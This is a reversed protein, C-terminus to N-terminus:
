RTDPAPRLAPDILLRSIVREALIQMLRVGADRQASVTAITSGPASYSTFSQVTGSSLVADSGIATVRYALDGSVTFRTIDNSGTIARGTESTTITYALAFRPANPLGLGTEFAEVFAFEERTDPVDALIAGRLVQAGGPGYVPSFGCGALLAAALLGRFWLM